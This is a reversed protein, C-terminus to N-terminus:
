RRVRSRIAANFGDRGTAPAPRPGAGLDAPTAGAGGDGGNDQLEKAFAKADAALAEADTGDLRKWHGPIGAEIAATMKLVQLELTGVRGTAEDRAAVARELESKEADARERVQTALTDREGKIQRLERRLAALTAKGGEGLADDSEPPPV